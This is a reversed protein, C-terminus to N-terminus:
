PGPPRCARRKGVFPHRRTSFRRQHVLVSSKWRRQWMAVAFLEEAREQAAM